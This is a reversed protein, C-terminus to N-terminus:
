ETKLESRIQISLSNLFAVVEEKSILNTEMYHDAEQQFEWETQDPSTGNIEKEYEQRTQLEKNAEESEFLETYQNWLAM